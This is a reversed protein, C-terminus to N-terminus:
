IGYHVSRASRALRRKKKFKNKAFVDHMICSTDRMRVKFMETLPTNLGRNLDNKKESFGNALKMFIEMM